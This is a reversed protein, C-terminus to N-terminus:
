RLLAGVEGGAELLELNLADLALGGGGVVDDVILDEEAELDVAAEADVELAVLLGGAAGSASISGGGGGGALEGLGDDPIIAAAVDVDDVEVLLEGAEEVRVVEPLRQSTLPLAM